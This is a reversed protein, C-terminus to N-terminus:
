ADASPEALAPPDSAVPEQEVPAVEVPVDSTEEGGSVIVPEAEPEPATASPTPADAGEASAAEPKEEMAPASVAAVADEVPEAEIDSKLDNDTARDVDVVVAKVDGADEDADADAGANAEGGKNHHHKHKHKHEKKKEEKRKQKRILREEETEGDPAEGEDVDEGTVGNDGEYDIREENADQIVLDGDLPNMNIDPTDIVIDGHIDVVEPALAHVNARGIITCHPGLKMSKAMILGTLSGTGRIVLREVSVDGVVRGGDIILCEMNIVDGILCGQRGVVVSGNSTLTGEFTGDIRLLRDFCLEGRIDVGKGVSTEPREDLIDEYDQSDLDNRYLYKSMSRAVLEDVEDTRSTDLTTLQDFSNGNDNYNRNSNNYLVDTNNNVNMKTGEHANLRLRNKDEDGPFGVQGSESTVIQQYRPPAQSQSHSSSATGIKKPIRSKQAVQGQGLTTQGGGGINNAQRQKLKVANM